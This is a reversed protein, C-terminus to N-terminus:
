GPINLGYGARQTRRREWGSPGPGPHGWPSARHPLHPPAPHLHTPPPGHQLTPYPPETGLLPVTPHDWLQRVQGCVGRGAEPLPTVKIWPLRSLSRPPRLGPVGRPRPHRPRARRGAAASPRAARAVGAGHPRLRRLVPPASSRLVPSPTRPQAGPGGPTRRSPAPQSGRARAASDRLRSCLRPPPLPAPPTTEEAKLHWKDRLWAGGPQAAGDGLGEDPVGRGM